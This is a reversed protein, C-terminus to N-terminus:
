EIYTSELLLRGGLFQVGHVEPRSAAVAPKFAINALYTNAMVETFYSKYLEKREDRDLSVLARDLYQDLEPDGFQTPNWAYNSHLGGSYAWPDSTSGAWEWYAIDYEGARVSNLFTLHEMVQLNAQIGVDHLMGVIMESAQQRSPINSSPMDWTLKEGDKERIGDDGMVWGAEDLLRNAEELNYPFTQISEDYAWVSPPMPYYGVTSMDQFVNSVIAQRNLAHNVARRVLPDM